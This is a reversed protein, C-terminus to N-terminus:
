RAETGSFGKTVNTVFHQLENQAWKRTGTERQRVKGVSHQGHKATSAFFFYFYFFCFLYLTFSVILLKIGYYLILAGCDQSGPLQLPVSATNVLVDVLGPPTDKSGDKIRLEDAIYDRVRDIM